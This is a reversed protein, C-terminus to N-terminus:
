AAPQAPPPPSTAPAAKEEMQRMQRGIDLIEARNRGRVDTEQAHMWLEHCEQAVQPWHAPESRAKALHTYLLCCFAGSRASTRIAKRAQEASDDLLGMRYYVRGLCEHFAAHQERPNPLDARSILRNALWAFKEAMKPNGGRETCLFAWGLYLDILLEDITREEGPAEAVQTHNGTQERQRHAEALAEEFAREAQDYAKAEFLAWALNVRSELPKFGLSAAIREHAIGKEYEMLECHFRGLWYHAWAHRLMQAIPRQDDGKESEVLRLAREFFAVAERLLKRREGRRSTAAVREKFSAAIVKLTEPGPDLDLAIDAESKVQGDDGILGHIQLLVLRERVSEPEMEVACRAYALARRLLDLSAKSKSKSMTARALCARALLGYLGQIRAQLFGNKELKDIAELLLTDAREAWHAREPKNPRDELQQLYRLALAVLVQLYAWEWDVVCDDFCDQWTQIDQDTANELGDLTKKLAALANLSRLRLDFEADEGGFSKPTHFLLVAIAERVSQAQPAAFDKRKDKLRKTYIEIREEKRRELHRLVRRLQELFSIHQERTAEDAAALARQLKLIRTEAKDRDSDARMKALFKCATQMRARYREAEGSWRGHWAALDSRWQVLESDVASSEISRKSWIM